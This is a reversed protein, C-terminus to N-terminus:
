RFVSFLLENVLRALFGDTRELLLHPADLGIMTPRNALRELLAEREQHLLEFDPVGRRRHRPEDMRGRHRDVALGLDDRRTPLDRCCLLLCFTQGVLPRVEVLVATSAATGRPLGTAWRAHQPVRARGVSNGDGDNGGSGPM